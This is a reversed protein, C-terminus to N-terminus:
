KAAAPLFRLAITVAWGALALFLGWQRSKRDGRSKIIEDRFARNTKVVDVLDCGEIMLRFESNKRVEEVLSPKGNSETVIRLLKGVGERTSITDSQIRSLKEEMLARRLECAEESVQYENDAM